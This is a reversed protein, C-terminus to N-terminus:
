AKKAYDLSVWGNRGAAYAKLLGWKSAGPGEAEEVITFAGKGTYVPKGDKKWYDFTTGPGKRIRLDSTTVNVKYEAAVPAAPAEPYIRNGDNDFVYYGANQKALEVANERDKFAGIQSAADKWDKRVRFYGTGATSAKQEPTAKFSVYDPVATIYAAAGGDNIQYWKEDKSIGTVTFAAGNNVVKKV